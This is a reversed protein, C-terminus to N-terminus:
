CDNITFTGLTILPDVWAASGVTCNLSGAGDLETDAGHILAHSFESVNTSGMLRSQLVPNEGDDYPAVTLTSEGNIPNNTAAVQRAGVLGAQSHGSANIRGSFDGAAYFLV